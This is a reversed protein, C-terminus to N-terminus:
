AVGNVPAHLIVVMDDPKVHRTAEYANGLGVQIGPDFIWGRRYLCSYEVDRIAHEFVGKCRQLSHCLRRVPFYPKRGEVANADDIRMAKREVFKRRWYMDLLDGGIALCVIRSGSRISIQM